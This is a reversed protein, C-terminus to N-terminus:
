NRPAFHCRSPPISLGQGLDNLVTDVNRPKNAADLDDDIQAFYHWTKTDSAKEGNWEAWQRFADYVERTRIVNFDNGATPGDIDYIQDDSQPTLDKFHSSSTDDHQHSNDIVGNSCWFSRVERRLEWGAGVVANVGAPQLHGVIEINGSAEGVTFGQAFHTEDTMPGLNPFGHDTLQTASNTPSMTGSTRFELEVWLIWVSVQNSTEGVVSAQVQHRTSAGKSVKALKPNAADATAGSWQIDRALDPDDPTLIAEIQVTENAKRVAAWNEAGTVHSQTAGDKVRIEIKVVKVQVDDQALVRDCAGCRVKLTATHVGVNAFAHSVVASTSTTGDDFKWEYRPSGCDPLSLDGPSFVFPQDKGKAAGKEKGDALAKVTGPKRPRCGGSCQNGILCPDQDSCSCSAGAAARAFPDAAPPASAPPVACGPVCKSGDCIQCAPCDASTGAAAPNGGCHWGAKLIGVGPNSVLLAGDESVTAPGISVFHGLDHDFSYLETVEGPSLGEVNPLTLRAPPDFRAGAPQITVILRPQQGFNPVMPVKDSHVVTVSVLGSRSGGPFTVSGPAIELAFGPVDPLTIVGGRVEDVPVGHALDLPLLFVPMTLPNDRGPVTTVVFELDPWAGPREVTSGDVVLRLTGVPAGAIRFQGQADTQATLPTDLIRLTAGRLPQNMNDLVVGSVSTTAPDAGAARASAVFTAVPSGELGDIRAEVVNNAIGEDPEAVFAVIARGDSDSLVPLEQGGPEFHGQGEVVSWRVAVGELRNFGDDTVVAVLPRPLEQGALGEQQSGSDVLLKSAPGPLATFRLVVPGHFGAASVEVRQNGAGARLGLTFPTAARGAPDTVVAIQRRGGALTGDGGRVKFVVPRGAVPQGAGDRLEVVLPQALLQGIGGTQRDGSVVVLRPLNPEARHVTLTLHATNGGADVADIALVNPGPVLPLDELLFSRHAVTARRGNVTVVAESANVTGAVIDNVLGSVTVSPTLVTAGDRPAEVALRPPFLDRVVHITATGKRGNGGTAVATLLNGGEILPVDRAVFTGASVQAPVGNVAVAAGPDSVTGRVETVTAALFSLDAPSDITVAPLSYRFVQLRVERENGARDAAHVVLQNEGEVLPVDAAFSGGTTALPLGNVTLVALGNEDDSEGTLRLTPRNTIQGAVPRAVTLSPTRTDLVVRAEVSSESGFVDAAVLLLSNAGEELPLVGEFRGGTVALAQGNMALSAVGGADAVTGSVALLPTRVAAGDVPAELTIVPPERDLVLEVDRVATVAHGARDRVTVEVRHVGAALPPTACVASGPELSCGSSIEVAGIRVSSAPWDLGSTADGTALEVEFGPVLSTVPGGPAVFSLGPPTVDVTFRWTAQAERGALDQLYVRATHEGDALAAAPSWSLGAATVQAEATRDVGDIFLRVSAPNVGSGEDSYAAAVGPAVAVLSGDAPVLGGVQPPTTDTGGGAIEFVVVLRPGQGGAAERAAYEVLGSEGELTKKLMWGHDATGALFAAVDATVDYRVWGSLGKTHLVGATAAPAFSGGAWQPSCDAQQNGTSADAACNWTAGAETWPAALRHADVRRGGSGWNDGNRTIFTELWASRLAAGQLAAAVAAPDFRILARNKGSQRIRLVTESGQNQNPSGQRLWTDALAPFTATHLGPGALLQFTFSAQAANGALDALMVQVTHGGAALVPPECTAAAASVTCGATVNTADVLVQLSAPNVGTGGDAYEIRIQPTADNVVVAQGPATIALRPPVQDSATSEVVLVLRPAQAAGGQLSTYDVQGNQGEETKKVLWGHNATGSLFALVDATVDFRVWGGLGNAHLVTDTPEEEFLGGAWLPSCNAQGNAPIADIGCHWTAGAETWDATLRHADVTRGESGWNDANNQVYLELRAEALRGNGVAGTIAAPDFRVLARNNGSAQIRLLPETGQNQNPSGSRLYTDAVAPLSLTQARASAAILFAGLLFGM